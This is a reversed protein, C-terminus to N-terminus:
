DDVTALVHVFVCAYACASMWVPMCVVTAEFEHADNVGDVTYCGSCALYKYQEPRGLRFDAVCVCM